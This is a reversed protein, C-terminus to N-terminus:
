TRAGYIVLELLNRGVQDTGFPHQLDPPTPKPVMFATNPNGPFLYNAFIASFTLALLFILGFLAARNRSFDRLFHLAEAPYNRRQVESKLVSDPSGREEVSVSKQETLPSGRIWSAM